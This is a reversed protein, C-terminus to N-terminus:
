HSYRSPIYRGGRKNNGKVKPLLSNSSNYKRLVERRRGNTIIEARNIADKYTIGEKESILNYVNGKFDCVFCIYVQRDPSVEASAMKDDHLVCRVSAWNYGDRCKTGYHRLVEVLDHPDNM